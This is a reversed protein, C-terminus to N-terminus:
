KKIEGNERYPESSMVWLDEFVEDKRVIDSRQEPPLFLEENWDITGKHKFARAGHGFCADRVAEADERTGFVPTCM